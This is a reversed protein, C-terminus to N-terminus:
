TNLYDIVHFVINCGLYTNGAPDTIPGFNLGGQPEIDVAGTIADNDLVEDIIDQTLKIMQQYADLGTRGAGIPMYLFVYNLDYEAEKEATTPTGFTVRRTVFNTVLQPSPILLPTQRTADPPIGDTDLINVGAIGLATISSCVKSIALSM